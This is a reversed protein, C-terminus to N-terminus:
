ADRLWRPSVPGAGVAQKTGHQSCHIMPWATDALRIPPTAEGAGPATPKELPPHTM